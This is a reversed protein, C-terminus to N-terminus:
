ATPSPPPPLQESRSRKDRREGHNTSDSPTGPQLPSTSRSSVPAMPPRDQLMHMVSQRNITSVDPTNVTPDQSQTNQTHNVCSLERATANAPSPSRRRPSPAHTESTREQANSNASKDIHSVVDFIRKLEQMVDHELSSSSESSHLRADIQQLFSKLDRVSDSVTELAPISTARALDTLQNIGDAISDLRQTNVADSQTALTVQQQSLTTLNTNVADLRQANATDNHVSQAISTALQQQANNTLQHASQLMQSGANTAQKIADAMSQAMAEPGGSRQHSTSIRDLIAEMNEQSKQHWKLLMQSTNESATANTLAISTERIQKVTELNAHQQALLANRHASAQADMYNMMLQFFQMFHQQEATHSAASADAQITVLATSQTTLKDALSQVINLANRLSTADEPVVARSQAVAGAITRAVNAMSETSGTSNLQATKVVELLNNTSSADALRAEHMSTIVTTAIDSLQHVCPQITQTISQVMDAMADPQERTTTPEGNNLPSQEAPLESTELFTAIVDRAYKRLKKPVHKFLTRAVNRRFKVTNPTTRRLSQARSSPAIPKPVCSWRTQTTCERQTPSVTVVDQSTHIDDLPKAATILGHMTQSAASLTDARKEGDVPSNPTNEPSDLLITTNLLTELMQPTSPPPPTVKYQPVCSPDFPLVTTLNLQPATSNPLRFQDRSAIGYSGLTAFCAHQVAHFLCNNGDQLINDPSRKRPVEGDTNNWGNFILGLVISIYQVEPQIAKISDFLLMDDADPDYFLTVYHNHTPVVAIIKRQTMSERWKVITQKTTERLFPIDAIEVNSRPPTWFRDCPM